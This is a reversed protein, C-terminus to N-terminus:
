GVSGRLYGSGTDKQKMEGKTGNRERKKKFFMLKQMSMSHDLYCEM